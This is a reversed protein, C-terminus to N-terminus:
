TNRTLIRGLLVVQPGIDEPSVGCRLRGAYYELLAAAADAHDTVAYNSMETTEIWECSRATGSVGLGHVSRVM